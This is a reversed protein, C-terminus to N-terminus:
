RTDTEIYEIVADDENSGIIISARSRALASCNAVAVARGAVEFMSVDNDNDGFVVVDAWAFGLSAVLKGLANAKTATPDRVSLEWFGPCYHNASFSVHANPLRSRLMTAAEEIVDPTDLATITIIEESDVLDLLSVQRLRPDGKDIKEDRYWLMGRNQPATFALREGELSSVLVFPAIGFGNLLELAEDGIARNMSHVHHHNGSHLDTVYAGDCEIVPLQLPFDGLVYRTGAASRATAVTFAVGRLIAALLGDRTRKSLTANSRLLTGDLDSVYLRRRDLVLFSGGDVYLTQGTVYASLPSALYLAAQAVDLLTGLRSRPVRRVKERRQQDSLNPQATDIGSCNREGDAGDPM